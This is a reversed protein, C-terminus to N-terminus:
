ECAGIVWLDNATNSDHAAAWAADFDMRVTEAQQTVVLVTNTQDGPFFEHCGKAGGHTEWAPENVPLDVLWMATEAETANYGGEPVAYTSASIGLSLAAAFALVLNTALQLGGHTNM